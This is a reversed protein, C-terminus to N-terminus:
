VERDFINTSKDTMFGCSRGIIFISHIPPPYASSSVGGAERRESAVSTQQDIGWGCFCCWRIACVGKRDQTDSQAFHRERPFARDAALLIARLYICRFM